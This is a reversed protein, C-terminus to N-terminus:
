ALGNQQADQYAQWLDFALVSPSATLLGFVMWWAYIATHRISRHVNSHFLNMTGNM